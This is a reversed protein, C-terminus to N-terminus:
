SESGTSPPAASGISPWGWRQKRFICDMMTLGGSHNLTHVGAVHPNWDPLIRAAEVEAYERPDIRVIRHVVLSRGYGVACDQGPRYLSGRHEFVHGAPRASRADSKVPNRPHAKWPGQPRDAYYLHLEDWSSGEEPALNVFMWWRGDIEVLTPDYAQVEQLLVEQLDWEFPFRRARFLQVSRTASSEPVLHWSTGARFVCPYSLHSEGELARVPTQCRGTRDMRMVNIHGVKSALPAEEFFIWYGGEDAVPFPDAWLYGAPPVLIRDPRPSLSDKGFGYALTWTKRRVLRQLKDLAYRAALIAAAGCVEGNGPPSPLYDGLRALSDEAPPPLAGEREQGRLDRLARVPFQSLKPLCRNLTRLVSRRDVTSWSEYLLRPPHGEGGDSVLATFLAKTGDVIERFGAPRAAFYPTSGHRYSWVGLRAIAGSRTRLPPSSFDVAVDLYHRRIAERDAENLWAGDSKRESHVMLSPCDSVLPALDSAEFADPQSRFLRNDLWRFADYTRHRWRGPLLLDREPPPGEVDKRVVLVIRADASDRIARIAQFVWRPAQLRGLVLGVRLADIPQGIM